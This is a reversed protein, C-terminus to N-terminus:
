TGDSVDLPFVLIKGDRGVVVGTEGAEAVAIGAVRFNCVCVIRPSGAVDVAFVHGDRDSYLLGEGSRAGGWPCWKDIGPMKWEKRICKGDIGHVAAKEAALAVIFGWRPTVAVATPAFDLGVSAIVCGSWLDYTVFGTAVGVVIVKFSDSIALAVIRDHYLRYSAFPREHRFLSLSSAADALVIWPGDAAVCHRSKVDIQLIDGTTSIISVTGADLLLFGRKGYPVVLATEPFPRVKRPHRTLSFNSLDVLRTPSKASIRPLDFPTVSM